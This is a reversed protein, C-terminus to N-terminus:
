KKKLKRGVLSAALNIILTLLMLIAAIAFAVDFEARERAYVYLAVTLSSGSSHMFNSVSGFFDNMSMGMGATFLLAASEGVIRGIALICGTVIGDISSPLVVTRIMHWKGAGLGLSAERYSQPVTKLSEQTTRIITPITAIVLTLSGALLSAQLGLLECFFLMGVLGFIISPIGTLTETAFEIAAVLKQNKAYETLYVAAGVGLPLIIILTVVVIYITNAINPLIGITDNIYSQETSLFEWTVHPLGRVFIYGIIFILLACTLTACFYLLFRLVRDYARRRGSLPQMTITKEEM